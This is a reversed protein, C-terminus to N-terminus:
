QYSKEIHDAIAECSNFNWLYKEKAGEEYLESLLNYGKSPINVFKHMLGLMVAEKVATSDFNYIKDVALMYVMTSHPYWSKDSVVRASGGLSLDFESASIQHKGRTKILIDKGQKLLDNGVKLVNDKAKPHYLLLSSKALYCTLSNKYDDLRDYKPSGLFKFKPNKTDFGFKEAFYPSPIVVHDVTDIYTPLSKRFDTMYTLSLTRAGTGMSLGEICIELDVGLKRIWQNKVDNGSIYGAKIGYRRLILDIETKNNWPSNYKRKQMDWLFWVDHGRNELYLALPIFYRLFTCEQIAFSIKM